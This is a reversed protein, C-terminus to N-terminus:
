RKKRPIDKSSDSRDVPRQTHIDRKYTDIPSKKLEEKKGLFLPLTETTIKELIDKLVPTKHAKRWIKMVLRMALNTHSLEKCLEKQATGDQNYYRFKLHDDSPTGFPYSMHAKLSRLLSNSEKEKKLLSVSVLKPEVTVLGAGISRKSAQSVVDGGAKFERL